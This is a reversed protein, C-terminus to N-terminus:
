GGTAIAAVEPSGFLGAFLALVVFLAVAFMAVGWVSGNARGEAQLEDM